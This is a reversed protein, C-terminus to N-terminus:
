DMKEVKCRKELKWLIKTGSIPKAALLCPPRRSFCWRAKEFRWSSWSCRMFIVRSPEMVRTFSGFVIPILLSELIWAINMYCDHFNLDNKKKNIERAIPFSNVLRFHSSISQADKQVGPRSWETECFQLINSFWSWIEFIPALIPGRFMAKQPGDGWSINKNQICYIVFM